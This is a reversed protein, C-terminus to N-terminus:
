QANKANKDVIDSLGPAMCKAISNFPDEVNDKVTAVFEMLRETSTTGEVVTKEGPAVSEAESCVLLQDEADPEATVMTDDHAMSGLPALLNIVNDDHGVSVRESSPPTQGIQVIGALSVAIDACKFHVADLKSELRLLTADFMDDDRGPKGCVESGHGAKRKGRALHRSDAASLGPFDLGQQFVHKAAVSLDHQDRTTWPRSSHTDHFGSEAALHQALLCPELVRLRPAVTSDVAM